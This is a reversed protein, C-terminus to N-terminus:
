NYYYLSPSTGGRLKFPPVGNMTQKKDIQYLIFLSLFPRAFFQPMRGVGYYQFDISYHVTALFVIAVFYLERVRDHNLANENKKRHNNKHSTNLKKHLLKFLIKMLSSVESLTIASTPFRNVSILEIVFVKIQLM